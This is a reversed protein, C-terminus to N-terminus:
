RRPQGLSIKTAMAVVRHLVFIVRAPNARVPAARGRAGSGSEWSVRARHREWHSLPTHVRATLLLDPTRTHKELHLSIGRHFRGPTYNSEGAPLSARHSADATLSRQEGRGYTPFNSVFFKGRDFLGQLTLAWADGSRQIKRKRWRTKPHTARHRLQWGPQSRIANQKGPLHQCPSM